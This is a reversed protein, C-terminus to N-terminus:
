ASASTLQKDCFDNWRERFERRLQSIRAPSLRVQGALDKTRENMSMALVLRRQRDTLTALWAPFDVRFQAQDPPPTVTNDRLRAELVDHRRQSGAAGDLSQRPTRVVGPLREVRFGHRQQARRSLVDKAGEMRAARRGCRVARVVMSAFSAPFRTADKGRNALRVFWKWALAGCETTLDAKTDADQERFVISAHTEIRPLLVAVFQDQLENISIVPFSTVAAIM